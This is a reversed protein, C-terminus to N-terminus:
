AGIGALCPSKGHLDYGQIVGAQTAGVGGCGVPKHSGGIVLREKVGIRARHDVDDVADPRGHDAKGDV